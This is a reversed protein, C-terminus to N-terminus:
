RPVVIRMGAELEPSIVEVDGDVFLGTEVGVLRVSGNADLVEVASGGEVLALLATAPLVLADPILTQTIEVTVTAGIWTPSAPESLLITVEVYNEGTQTDLVPAPNIASVSGTVDTDDPLEVNVEIGVSVLDRDSLPLNAAVRQTTTMGAREPTEVATLSALTRGAALEQGIEVGPEWSGVVSPGAVFLVDATSVMGDIHQGTEQQWGQVAVATHEDFVGDVAFADDGFGLSALNEELQRIDPGELGMTMNRYAPSTGYMLYLPRYMEGHDALDAQASVLEAEASAVAAELAALEAPTVEALLDALTQEASLMDADAADIEARTPGTRLDILAEEATDLDARAQAYQAETPNELLDLRETAALVQAEADDIEADTPGALLDALAEEATLVRAEADDIEADTPGALLDALAEEATLLEARALEIDVNNDSRQLEDRLREWAALRAAEATDIEAESSGARLDALAQKATQVAAQASNVEAASPGARLDALRAEATAIEAGAAALDGATPNDLADLAESAAAVAAQASSIEAPSPPEILRDRAEVAEAVAARAAAADAEDPGSTAADLKDAAASLADRASAVGALVRATEAESPEYRVLYIQEGQRLITGEDALHMLVGNDRSTLTVTGEYDLTGSIELYETLDRQTVTVTSIETEEAQDVSGGNDAGSILLIVVAAAVGVVAVVATGLLRRRRQPTM